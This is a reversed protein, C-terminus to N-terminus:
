VMKAPFSVPMCSIELQGQFQNELYSKIMDMFIYELGYHGADIVAMQCAASDIGQHHSIDGTVLIKAGAELANNIVSGGSGPCVAALQQKGKIEDEGYVTVFPLGFQQKVFGAAESVTMAQPLMGVVGIGFPIGTKEMIGMPELPRVDTLGLKKAAGDGMCGPASDFNTHMAYYSIDSQILKLIRRSIFDQDNVKKLPKFILPHHTILMDAQQRIAEEVVQDTADLALLVKKVEKHQRGALLGPNDWECACSLPCLEELKEIINSCKM